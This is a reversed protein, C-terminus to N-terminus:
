PLFASLIAELSVKRGCQVSCTVLGDLCPRKPTADKVAQLRLSFMLVPMSFPQGSLSYCPDYLTPSCFAGSKTTPLEDRAATM